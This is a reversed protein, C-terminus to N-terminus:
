NLPCLWASTPSNSIVRHCWGASQSGYSLQRMSRWRETCGLVANSTAHPWSRRFTPLSMGVVRGHYRGTVVPTTTHATRAPTCHPLNVTRFWLLVNLIFTVDYPSFRKPPAKQRWRRKWILYFLLYFHIKSYALNYWFLTYCSRRM